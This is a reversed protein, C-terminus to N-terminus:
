ATLAAKVLAAIEGGTARGDVRATVAKVLAGMHRMTAPEGLATIEETVIATLAAPDLPAPLYRELIAVEALEKEALEPRNGAIYAEASDKRSSVQSRMVALEEAASLERQEKGSVEANSIATMAMRLVSTTMADRAKMATTLDERITTKLEGM